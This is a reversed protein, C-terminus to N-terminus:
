EAVPDNASEEPKTTLTVGKTTAIHHSVKWGKATVQITKRRKDGEDRTSVLLGVAELDRISPRFQPIGKFGFEDFDSPSFVGGTQVAHQFVRYATPRLQKQIADFEDQCQKQLWEEYLSHREIDTTPNVEKEDVWSCYDGASSLVSRLIGQLLKYLHAFDSDLLPLSPTGGPKAFARVRNSLIEAAHSSSIEGVQIPPQLYGELRPSAVVGYVIGLAGCLVWRLGPVNFLHDRLQEVVARADESSQLLELNDIVCVVGRSEPSPFISELWDAIAKRFGSREFGGSTNNESQVGFSVGFAPVQFGAQASKLQPSNLWKNLATSKTVASPQRVDQARELLTQAVERFVEDSFEDISRGPTLQFIKRCPVFLPGEPGNLYQKFSAYAAVNAISTKGVGNLGEITPFKPVNVLQKALARLESDRGTLLTAGLENAPLATTQFPSGTLGWQDYISATSLKNFAM